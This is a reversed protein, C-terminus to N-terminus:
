CGLRHRIKPSLDAVKVPIGQKDQSGIISIPFMLVYERSSTAYINFANGGSTKLSGLMKTPHMAQTSETNEMKKGALHDGLLLQSWKPSNVVWMIKSVFQTHKDLSVTEVSSQRTITCFRQSFGENTRTPAGDLRKSEQVDRGRNECEAM